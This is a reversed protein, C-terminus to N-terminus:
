IEVTDKRGDSSGGDQFMLVILTRPPLGVFPARLHLRQIGAAAM